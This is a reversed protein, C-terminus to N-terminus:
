RNISVFLSAATSHGPPLNDGTGSLAIMWAKVSALSGSPHDARARGFRQRRYGSRFCCLVKLCLFALGPAACADPARGFPPTAM